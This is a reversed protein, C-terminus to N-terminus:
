RVPCIVCALPPAQGQNGLAVRSGKRRHHKRTPLRSRKLRKIADLAHKATRRRLSAGRRRRLPSSRPRQMWTILWENCRPVLTRRASSNSCSVAVSGGRAPRADQGPDTAMNQLANCCRQRWTAGLCACLTDARAPSYCRTGIRGGPWYGIPARLTHPRFHQARWELPLMDWNEALFKSSETQAGAAVAAFTDPTHKLVVEIVIGTSVLAQLLNSAPSKEHLSKPTEEFLTRYEDPIARM